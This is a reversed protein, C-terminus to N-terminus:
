DTDEAVGVWGGRGSEQLIRRLQLLSQVTFPIGMLFPDKTTVGM